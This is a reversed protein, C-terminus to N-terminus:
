LTYGLGQVQLPRLTITVQIKHECHVSVITDHMLRNTTVGLHYQAIATKNTDEAHYFKLIIYFHFTENSM